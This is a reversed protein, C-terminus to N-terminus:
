ANLGTHRFHFIVFSLSPLALVFYMVRISLFTVKVPVSDKFDYDYVAYITCVITQAVVIFTYYYKARTEAKEMPKKIQFIMEGLLCMEIFISLSLTTTFWFCFATALTNMAKVQSAISTDFYVTAAFVYEFSWGNDTSDTKMYNPCILYTM